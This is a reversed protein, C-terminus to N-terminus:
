VSTLRAVVLRGVPRSIGPSCRAAAMSAATVLTLDSYPTRPIVPAYIETVASRVVGFVLKM